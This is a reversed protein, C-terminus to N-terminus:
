ARSAFYLGAYVKLDILCGDAERVALWDLVGDLPVEHVTIDESGDGEGAGTKTLGTALFLTIVEDTMGASAAGAALRRMERAAYGTEELLERRAADALDEDRHRDDDGALGAPLEIVRRNVPPRDQEVLVLRRDNTVAVVGVIGSGNKRAAYEWNGRRVLAIHQGDALTHVDPDRNMGRM